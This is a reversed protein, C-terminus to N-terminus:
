RIEYFVPTLADLARLEPPRRAQLALDIEGLLEDGDDVLPALTAETDHVAVESGSRDEIARGQVLRLTEAAFMGLLLGAVLGAALWRRVGHDAAARRPPRRAAPFRLIRARRGIQDLRALIQRRQRELFPEPFLADAEAEAEARLSGLWAAVHSLRARCAECTATHARARAGADDAGGSLCLAVLQDDALHGRAHTM